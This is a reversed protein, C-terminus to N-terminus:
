SSSDAKSCGEDEEKKWVAKRHIICHMSCIECCGSCIEKDTNSKYEELNM